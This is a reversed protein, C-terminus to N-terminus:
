ARRRCHYKDPRWFIRRLRRCRSTPRVSELEAAAIINIEGCFVASHIAGVDDAAALTDVGVICATPATLGDIEVVVRCGTANAVVRNSTEFIHDGAIAAFENIPESPALRSVPPVPPSTKSPRPPRSTRVPPAPRSSKRKKASDSLPVLAADRSKMVSKVCPAGPTPSTMSRLAMSALVPAPLGPSSSKVKM